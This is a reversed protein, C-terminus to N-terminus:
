DRDENDEVESGNAGVVSGPDKTVQRRFRLCLGPGQESTWLDGPDAARDKRREELAPPVAQKLRSYHIWPKIGHLKASSYTTLLVQHPGNWVPKLPVKKWSKLYVWDGPNFPHLPAYLGTPKLENLDRHLASVTAALRCLFKATLTNGIEGADELGPRTLPYPRGFLAEFPSVASAVRTRGPLASCHPLIDNLLVKVVEKTQSTRCPFALPWGTMTDVFVLLYRYGMAPPLESFDCQWSAGPHSGRFVSGQQRPQNGSSNVRQCNVCNKVIAEAQM